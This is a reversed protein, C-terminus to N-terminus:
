FVLVFLIILCIMCGVLITISLIKCCNMIQISRDGSKISLESEVKNM